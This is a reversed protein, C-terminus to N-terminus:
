PARRRSERVQLEWVRNAFDIRLFADAAEAANQDIPPSKADGKAMAILDRQQPNTVDYLAVTTHADLHGELASELLDGLRYVGVAFGVFAARREAVTTIGAGARYSPVVALV